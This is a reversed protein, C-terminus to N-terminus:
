IGLKKLVFIGQLGDSDLGQSQLKWGKFLKNLRNYGYVRHANFEIYSENTGSFPLGLFLLGGPKLMCHIQQVAEFDGYPSLPDGYRGLGSHEISSFSVANEFNEFVLNNISDDLYDNVHIWELSPTEYRKRTYDLTTVFSAGTDLAIAEVWPNATGVVVMTKGKVDNAYSHVIENLNKDSYGLPEKRRVKELLNQMHGDSILGVKTKDDSSSDSYAEDFYWYRKLPLQGKDTFDDMMEAPIEQIPPKIIMDKPPYRLKTYLAICRKYYDLRKNAKEFSNDNEEKQFKLNDYSLKTFNFLAYIVILVSIASILIFKQNNNM